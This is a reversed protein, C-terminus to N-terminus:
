FNDCTIGITDAAGAGQLTVTMQTSTPTYLFYSDFVFYDPPFYDIIRPVDDVLLTVGMTSLDQPFQAACQFQIKYQVFPTVYITQNYQINDLVGDLEIVQSFWYINYNYGPGQESEISAWSTVSGPTTIM